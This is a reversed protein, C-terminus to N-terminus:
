HSFVTSVAWPTKATDVVLLRFSKGKTADLVGAAVVLGRQGEVAPYTFQRVITSLSIM